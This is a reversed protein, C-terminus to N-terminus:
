LSRFQSPTKGTTDKFAKNFSSKSKFGTMEAISQITYIDNEPDKLKVKAEEVRYGNVFTSFNQDFESNILFSLYKSNSGLDTALSKLSLDTNLYPKEDTMLKLLHEKLAILQQDDLGGSKIKELTFSKFDKGRYIILVIYFLTLVRFLNKIVNLNPLQVIFISLIMVSYLVTFGLVWNLIANAENSEAERFYNKQELYLVGVKVLYYINQLLFFFFLVGFNVNVHLDVLLKYNRSESDLIDFAFFAFTNFAFVAIAPLYHLIQYRRIESTKENKFISAVYLYMSPAVTLIAIFFFYSSYIVIPNSAFAGFLYQVWTVGFVLFLSSLFISM